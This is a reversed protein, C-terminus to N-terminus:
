ELKINSKTVLTRTELKEESAKRKANKFYSKFAKSDLEIPEVKPYPNINM